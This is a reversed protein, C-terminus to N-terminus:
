LLAYRVLFVNRYQLRYGRSLLRAFFCQKILSYSSLLSSNRAYRILEGKIFGKKISPPINSEAHPYLYANVDKQHTRLRLSDNQISIHLDLLRGVQKSCWVQNHSSSSLDSPKSAASATHTHRCCPHRRHLTCVALIFSSSWNQAFFARICSRHHKRTRALLEIGNRHRQM